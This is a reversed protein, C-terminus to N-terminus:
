SRNAEEAGLVEPPMAVNLLDAGLKDWVNIRICNRVVPADHCDATWIVEISRSSPIICFQVAQIPVVGGNPTMTLQDCLVHEFLVLVIECEGQGVPHPPVQPMREESRLVNMKVWGLGRTLDEVCSQTWSRFGLGDVVHCACGLAKPVKPDTIGMEVEDKM